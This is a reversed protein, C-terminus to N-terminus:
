GEKDLALAQRAIDVSNALLSTESFELISAGQNHQSLVSSVSYEVKKLAERMAKNQSELEAISKADLERAAQWASLMLDYTNKGIYFDESKPTNWKEFEESM